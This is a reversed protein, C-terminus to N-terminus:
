LALATMTITASYNDATLIKNSGSEARFNITTVTGTPDNAFASQAVGSPTTTLGDWCKYLSDGTGINCAVGNDKYKDLIHSGSPSFGFEASSLDITFDFDPSSSAVSYDSFYDLSSQLAPDTLSNISLSYGSNNNTTVTWSASTTSVGGTLGNISDMNLDAPASISIFTEELVQQYGALIKYNTSESNGTGVEGVTDQIEFNTSTGLGGGINISDREIKYNLSERVQGIVSYPVIFLFLLITILISHFVDKM